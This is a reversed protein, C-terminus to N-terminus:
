FRLDGGCINSRVEFFCAAVVQMERTRSEWLCPSKWRCPRRLPILQEQLVTPPLRWAKGKQSLSQGGVCVQNKWIFVTNQLSKKRSSTLPSICVFVSKCLHLPPGQQLCKSSYGPTIEGESHKGPRGWIVWPTCWLFAPSCSPCTPWKFPSGSFVSKGRKQLM